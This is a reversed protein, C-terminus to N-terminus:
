ASRMSFRRAACMSFKAAILSARRAEEGASRSAMFMLRTPPSGYPPYQPRSWDKTQRGNLDADVVLGVNGAEVVDAGRGVRTRPESSARAEKQM